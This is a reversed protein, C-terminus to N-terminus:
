GRPVALLDVHGIECALAGTRAHAWSLATAADIRGSEVTAAATGRALEAILPRDDPGLRWPSPATEVAYGVGALAVALVAGAEAGAAPGFGKDTGQHARFAAAIAADAPHPPHWADRGDCTLATYFVIGSGSLADAFRRCWGESVLDFLASATVLHPRFAHAAGPDAALDAAAFAVAIRRGARELVLTDGEAHAADAWATLADRAADALARDHDLLTWHQRPGLRPALARLNSGTGAGLDVIRQEEHRALHGALTAELAASRARRDAPERLALWAASFTAAEATM